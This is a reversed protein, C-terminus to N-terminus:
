VEFLTLQKGTFSFNLLIKKVKKIEEKPDLSLKAFDLGWTQSSFTDLITLYPESANSYIKFRGITCCLKDEENLSINKVWQALILEEINM